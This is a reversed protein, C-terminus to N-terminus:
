ESDASCRIGEMNRTVTITANVSAYVVGGGVTEISVTFQGRKHADHRATWERRHRTFVDGARVDIVPVTLERLTNAPGM